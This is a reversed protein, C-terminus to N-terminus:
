SRAAIRKGRNGRSDYRQGPLGKIAIVLGTGIGDLAEKQFVAGGGEVSGIGLGGFAFALAFAFALTFSLAFAFSLAFSLAFAFAFAFAFTLAFSLAFASVGHGVAQVRWHM